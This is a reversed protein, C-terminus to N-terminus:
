AVRAGNKDTAWGCTPSNSLGGADCSSIPYNGGTSIIQEYPKSNFSKVYTLPYTAM